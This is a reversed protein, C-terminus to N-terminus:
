PNIAEVVIYCKTFATRDSGTTVTVNANSVSLEINNALVPSAYPLPLAALAGASPDTASGYIRTFITGTTFTLGHAVSKAATDPLAGFDIVKRYVYRREISQDPTSDVSEPFYTQGTLFEKTDYFASEKNNTVLLSRNFSQALRVILEKFEKSNVDTGYLEDVDLIETTPLFMGEHIDDM